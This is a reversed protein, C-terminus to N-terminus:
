KAPAKARGKVRNKINPKKESPQLGMAEAVKRQAEKRGSHNEVYRMTTSINKHRLMRQVETIPTGLDNHLTAFSSRLRHPTLKMKLAKSAKAVIKRTFGARHPAGDIAPFMLGEGTKPRLRKLHTLLWEPVDLAVAERGKTKGATYTARHLDLWEWRATLAEDERLGLGLMMRVAARVHPNEASDVVQLFKATLAAPLTARPQSQVKLKKVKFPKVPIVNHRICWGILANLAILLSNAGGPTGGNELYIARCREVTTTALQDVTLAGLHPEIHRTWYSKVSKMHAVSATPTMEEVWDEYVKFLTPLEGPKSKRLEALKRERTKMDDLWATAERFGTCGTSGELIQGSVRTKYYYVEGQPGKYLKLGDVYGAKKPSAPEAIAKSKPKAKTM